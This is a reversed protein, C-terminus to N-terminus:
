EYAHSQPPSDETERVSVSELDESSSLQMLPAEIPASTLAARAQFGLSFASSRDPSPLSLAPATEFGASLDVQSGWSQLRWQAEAATPRSGQPLSGTVPAMCQLVCGNHCCKENKACDSDNDCMWRFRAVACVAPDIKESPCVGPKVAPEECNLSPSGPPSRTGPREKGTSDVCWCYGTSGHCQERKYQGDKDCQPVFAGIGGGGNLNDREQECKTKPRGPEECNLSPSGPPSRTGPREKGTSDVCWCYGTSGHCQERKYQGDKDCQPVFAGIGGGGNLNDREQECKTKPRGINLETAAETSSLCGSLCLLVACLVLATM